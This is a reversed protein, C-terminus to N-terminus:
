KCLVFLKCYYCTRELGIYLILIANYMCCYVLPYRCFPPCFHSYAPLLIYAISTYISIFHGSIEWLPLFNYLTIARLLFSRRFHEKLVEQLLRESTQGTHPPCVASLVQGLRLSMPQVLLKNSPFCRVTRQSLVTDECSWINDTIIIQPSPFQNDVSANAWLSICSELAHHILITVASKHMYSM